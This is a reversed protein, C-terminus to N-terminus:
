FLLVVALAPGSPQQVKGPFYCDLFRQPAPMGAGQM